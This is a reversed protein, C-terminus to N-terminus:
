VSGDTKKPPLHKQRHAREGKRKEPKKEMRHFGWTPKIYTVKKEKEM